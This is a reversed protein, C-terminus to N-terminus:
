ESAGKVNSARKVRACSPCYPAEAPNLIYGDCTQCDGLTPQQEADKVLAAVFDALAAYVDPELVIRNTTSIGNDTTLVIGFGDFEAYVGDGIYRKNDRSM